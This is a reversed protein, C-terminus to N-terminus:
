CLLVCRTSPFRLTICAQSIPASRPPHSNCLKWLSYLSFSLKCGRIYCRWSLILLLVVAATDILCKM